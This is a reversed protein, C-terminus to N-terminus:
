TSTKIFAIAFLVGLVLDVTGLPVISSAVRGQKHLVALTVVWGLKEVICPLMLPRLRVPDRAIVLFGFQWALTVAAFGYYYEAHTIAPPTQRGITDFLFFLPTVVLLGWGGAIAFVWKSFTM